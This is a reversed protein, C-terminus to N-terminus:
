VLMTAAIWCTTPGDHDIELVRTSVVDGVRHPLHSGLRLCLDDGAAGIQDIQHLHIDLLRYLQDVDRPQRQPLDFIRRAAPQADAREHAVGIKGIMREDLFVIRNEGARDHGAGGLLEAIHRRGAAVEHLARSARVEVVRRRGAILALRAATAGGDLAEIPTVGDEAGAIRQM